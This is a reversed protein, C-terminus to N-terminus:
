LEPLDPLFKEVIIRAATELRRYLESEHETEEMAADLAFLVAAAEDRNLVIEEPLREGNPWGLTTASQHSVVVGSRLTAGRV